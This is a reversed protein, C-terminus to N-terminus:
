LQYFKIANQGFIKEALSKNEKSNLCNEVVKLQQEYSGALLCVPWDSGYIVRNEGFNELVTEIYPKFDKEQWNYWNAETLLGSIKCYVNEFQAVKKIDKQWQKILGKKIYPKALHDVILANEDLHPMMKLISSLQNPFVLIDYTFQQKNLCKLGKIFNENEFFVKKESQLIHRFGKLKKQHEYGKLQKELNPSLLDIWGVVGKILDNKQALNLLFDTEQISQSAQIAICGNFGNKQLIPALDDPLFDKRIVAMTDASIWNDRLEDFQWFHQHADIKM